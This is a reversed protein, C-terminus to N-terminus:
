RSQTITMYQAISKEHLSTCYRFRLLARHHWVSQSFPKNFVTGGLALAITLVMTSFSIPIKMRGLVAHYSGGRISYTNKIVANAATM